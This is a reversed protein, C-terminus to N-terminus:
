RLLAGRITAADPKTRANWRITKYGASALMADRQADKQAGHTRDDLEIVAVVLGTARDVAVYDVVKQSFMGRALYYAKGDSRPVAPDLLAGMAVQPCIRLEPAAIELRILFELENPTLMPKAKFRAASQNAVKARAVAVLSAGGVLVVGLLIVNSAMSM